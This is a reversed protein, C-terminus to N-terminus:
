NILNKGQYKSYRFDNIIIEVEQQDSPGVKTGFLWLNIFLGLAKQPIL